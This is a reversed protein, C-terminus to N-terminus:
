VSIERRYEEKWDQINRKIKDYYESLRGSGALYRLRKVKRVKPSISCRKRVENYEAELRIIQDAPVDLREAAVKWADDKGALHLAFLYSKFSEERNNKEYAHLFSEAAKNYEGLYGFSVGINHYIPGYEIPNAQLMDDDRLIATYIEVAREYHGCQLENDAQIKLKERAPLHDTEEMIRIMENIQSEDYYDCSCCLTVVIDKLDAHNKLMHEMKDATESMDLEERLWVVFGLDFIEGQMIYINKRMYYCVEEISYVRTDTRHFHYPRKALKSSCQILRGM